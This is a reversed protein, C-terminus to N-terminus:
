FTGALAAGNGTPVLTLEVPRTRVPPLGARERGVRNAEIQAWGAGGIVPTLFPYLFSSLGLVTWGTVGAGNSVWVGQERLARNSRMSGALSVPPGVVAAVSGVVVTGLGFGILSNSNAEDGALMMGAGGLIGAAGGIMMWGGVRATRSARVDVARWYQEDQVQLPLTAPDALPIATAAPSPPDGVVGPGVVPAESPAAAEDAPVVPAEAPAEAPPEAAAVACLLTWTWM